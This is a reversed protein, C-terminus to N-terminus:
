SGVLRNKFGYEPRTYTKGGAINRISTGSLWYERSVETVSESAKVRRRIDEVQRDDLFWRRRGRRVSDSAKSPRRRIRRLVRTLYPSTGLAESIQAYSYGQCRMEWIRNEKTVSIRNRM